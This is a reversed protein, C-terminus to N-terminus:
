ANSSCSRLTRHATPAQQQNLVGADCFARRVESVPDVKNRYSELAIVAERKVEDIKQAATVELLAKQLAECDGTRFIRGGLGDRILEDAAQVVDSAVIALGSAMAEQVVLAWPEHESPLVLVDGCHYALRLQENDLFGTWIVRSQLEAPVRSQLQERLVGDGVILLDWEPRQNAIKAFADILLDVRKVPVLRGSFLLYRRQRKLGFKQRFRELGMEDCKAFSEYDPWYPVRYLLKPDAGYKIFFEDGFAGMSFVGSARKVWWDYLRRKTFGSLLSHKPESRINSDQNVFFPIERRDCFNMLRLYSIFRYGNIIAVRINHDRFYQMM